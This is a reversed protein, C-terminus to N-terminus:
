KKVIAHFTLTQTLGSETTTDYMVTITKDSQYQTEGNALLQMPVPKPIFEARILGKSPENNVITCDCPSEIRSILIVDESYPYDLIIKEGVFVEGLEIKTLQFM